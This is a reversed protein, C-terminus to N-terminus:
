VLPSGAASSPRQDSIIRTVFEHLDEPMEEEEAPGIRLASAVARTARPAVWIFSADPNGRALRALRHRLVAPKGDTGLGYIACLIRLDEPDDFLRLDGEPVLEVHYRKYVIYLYVSMAIAAFPVVFYPEEGGAVMVASVTALGLVFLVTFAGWAEGARM